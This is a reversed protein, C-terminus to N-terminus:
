QVAADGRGRMQHDSHVSMEDLASTMENNASSVVVGQVMLLKLNSGGGASHYGTQCLLRMERSSPAMMVQVLCILDTSFCSGSLWSLCPM